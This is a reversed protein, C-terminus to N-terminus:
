KAPIAIPAHAMHSPTITPSAIRARALFQHALFAWIGPFFRAVKFVGVPGVRTDPVSPRLFPDRQGPWPPLFLLHSSM